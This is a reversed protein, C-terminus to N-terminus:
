EEECESKLNEFRDYLEDLEKKNTAICVELDSAWCNLYHEFVFITNKNTGIIFNDQLCGEVSDVYEWEKGEEGLSDFLESESCYYKKM